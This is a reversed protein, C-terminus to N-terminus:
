RHRRRAELAISLVGKIPRLQGSLALEGSMYFRDLDPLRNNVQLKLMGLAIPLDLNPGENRVDAPDHDTKRVALAVRQQL